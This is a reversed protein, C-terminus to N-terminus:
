LSKIDGQPIWSKSSLGGCMCDKRIKNWVDKMQRWNGEGHTSRARVKIFWGGQKSKWFISTSGHCWCLIGKTTFLFHSTVLQSCGLISTVNICFNFILLSSLPNENYLYHIMVDRTSSYWMDKKRMLAKKYQANPIIDKFEELPTQDISQIRYLMHIINGKVHDYEISRCWAIFM